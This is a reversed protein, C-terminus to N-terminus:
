TKEPELISEPKRISKPELIPEPELRLVLVQPRDNLRINISHTGLGRGVIMWKGDKFFSGACWPVFFQYQPTMVGGLFPLCITGGHFHGALTIDAGWKRAESFYLPSHILLIQLRKDDAHGLKKELYGKPMRAPKELFLKRYFCPHLDVGSIDLEDFPVTQDNLMVVGLDSAKRVLKSYGNKYVERERYLRMEHNGLSYFVPAIRILGELLRFTADLKGIGKTVMLDGGILIGDPKECAIAELLLRNGWGFEKDHVDTIFILKKGCRIKASSISVEEVTFHNKEYESRLFLGAVVALVAALAKRM